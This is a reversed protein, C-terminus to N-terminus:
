EWGDVQRKLLKWAERTLTHCGVRVTKGNYEVSVTIGKLTTNGYVLKGDKAVISTAVQESVRVERIVERSPTSDPFSQGTAM